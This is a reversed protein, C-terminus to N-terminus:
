LTHLSWGKREQNILMHQPVVSKRDEYRLVNNCRSGGWYALVDGHFPRIAGDASRPSALWRLPFPPWLKAMYSMHGCCLWYKTIYNAM